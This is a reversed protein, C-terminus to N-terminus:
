LYPFTTYSKGAASHLLTKNKESLETWSFPKTVLKINSKGHMMLKTVIKKKLVV